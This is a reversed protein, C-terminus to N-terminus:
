FAKVGGGSGISQYDVKVEPHQKQYESVWRQMMPAVFTSGAGQLRVDASAVSGGLAMAALAARIFGKM